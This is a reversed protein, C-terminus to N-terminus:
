QEDDEQRELSYKLVDDLFGYHCFRNPVMLGDERYHLHQEPDFNWKTLLASREQYKRNKKSGHFFHRIVGPVYGLRLGRARQGFELCRRRYGESVNPPVASSVDNVFARAMIFDGSGLVAEQFLGGIKDYARRTIAWAYGPHPYNPGLGGRIGHVHCYGFSSFLNLNYGRKDMDCAHSFLQVVDYAGNLLRITDAAWTTNEFAIDADIWAMYQWDLPLLHRVGMNILNEKHWLVDGANVQLYRFTSHKDTVQYAQGLYTLEVVYLQINAENQMRQLFEKALRIRSSFDAPNSVVVVVHLASDSLKNNVIADRVPHHQGLPEPSPIILTM